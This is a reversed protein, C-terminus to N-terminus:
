NEWILFKASDLDVQLDTIRKELEVILEASDTSYVIITDRCKDCNFELALAQVADFTKGCNDCTFINKTMLYGKSERQLKLYKAIVM